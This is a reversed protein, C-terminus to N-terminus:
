NLTEEILNYVDQVTKVQEAKQDPIQITFDRELHMILEVQDLSDLKLDNKLELEPKIEFDYCSIDKICQNIKEKM